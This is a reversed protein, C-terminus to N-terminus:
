ARYIESHDNFHTVRQNYHKAKKPETIMGLLRLMVIFSENVVRVSGRLSKNKKLKLFKMDVWM